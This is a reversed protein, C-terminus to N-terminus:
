RVTLRQIAVGKGRWRDAAQQDIWAGAADRGAVFLSRVVTRDPRLKSSAALSKTHAAGDILHLRHRRLRAAGTLYSAFLGLRHAEALRDLDDLLPRNFTLRAVEGVIEEATRPPNERELPALLVLVTDAHPSERALSSLDPNASYGGDWYHRGDIEVAQFLHPLCTSALVVDVTIESRRFLRARGTAVDTASIVLEVPSERRLRAFDICSELVGRLPNINMPNLSYPSLAGSLHRMSAAAVRELAIGAATRALEEPLGPPGAAVIAQWLASLRARAENRGGAALGDALAVANVAGASAGSVWGIPLDEEELLRDLVGWTFAGHSGGGQLALNFVPPTGVPRRRLSM